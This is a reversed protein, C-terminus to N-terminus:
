IWEEDLKKNYVEVAHEYLAIDQQNYKRIIRITDLDVEEVKPRFSRAMLIPIVFSEDNLLKRLLAELVHTQDQLGFVTYKSVMEMASDLRRSPVQTLSVMDTMINSVHVRGELGKEYIEKLSNNLAVEHAPHKDNNRIYYYNSIVRDIPDRFLTVLILPRDIQKALDLNLYFHGAVARLKTGGAIEEM